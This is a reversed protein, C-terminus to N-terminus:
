TADPLNFRAKDIAYNAAVEAATLARSYYAIRYIHGAFINNYDSNPAYGGISPVRNRNYVDYTAYATTGSSTAAKGDIYAVKHSYDHAAYLPKNTSAAYQYSNGFSIISGNSALTVGYLGEHLSDVKDASAMVTGGALATAYGNSSTAQIRYVFEVTRSDAASIAPSFWAPTNFTSSNTFSNADFGGGNIVTADRSGILDKWVTANPDHVGWGANEIGDWMAVLGDQVYSRASLGGGGAMMANRMNILM